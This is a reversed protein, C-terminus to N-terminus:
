IVGRHNTPIKSSKISQSKIEKLIVAKAYTNPALGIDDAMNTLIKHLKEDLSLRIFKLKGKPKQRKPRGPRTIQIETEMIAIRKRNYKLLKYAIYPM